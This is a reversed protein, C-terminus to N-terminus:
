DAVASLLFEISNSHFSDHEWLRTNCSNRGKCGCCL